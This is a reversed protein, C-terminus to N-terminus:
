HLLEGRMVTVAQGGLAVRDGGIRVRVTGGRESAQHALLENREHRSRWYPGLACHASGTVPDEDVGVAPAFFRSVFDFEFSAAEATVIVGRADVDRLRTMDPELSRVHAESVVEVLYDFRNRGVYVPEADLGLADLLEAPPRAVAEPPEAPFDLEIWDRPERTATLEGSLTHFRAPEDPSVHGDEWLVHAGALTAHGCLEVETSPTFWRLDWDEGHRWLFATESLNMERAVARLWRDERPE